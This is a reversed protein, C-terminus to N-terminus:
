VERPDTIYGTIASATVTAPSACYVFSEPSGMRGRFNRTSATIATEGAALNASFCPHCSPTGVMGGAEIVTALIGEKLANLYVEQSNPRVLLRVNPHVKRGKLVDAVVRMDELRGNTCAGVFALDVKVKEVENIPKVNQMRHPVAVQPELNSVDIDYIAAYTADDDPDSPTFPGFPTRAKVYDIVKQDARMLAFDVNLEASATAICQRGDISMEDITAGAYEVDKNVFTGYKGGIHLIIDRPEVRPPLKGRINFKVCENVPIWTEGKALIYAMELLGMGRAACNLAGGACTHSDQYM